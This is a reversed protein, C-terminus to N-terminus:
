RCCARTRPHQLQHRATDLKVAYDGVLDAFIVEDIGPVSRDVLQQSVDQMGAKTKVTAAITDFAADTEQVAANDAQDATATGTSMRPLNISDTNPPLDRAGLADAVVRGARALTVFQDQLWLPAILYGGTADTSNLDFKADAPLDGTKVGREFAMERGHRALREAAQPDSFKSVRYLDTFLSNPGNKRYTLPERGVRVDTPTAKAGLQKDAEIARQELEFKKRAQNQDSSPRTTASARPTTASRPRASTAELKELDADDGAEKIADRAAQFAAHAEIQEERLEILSMDM